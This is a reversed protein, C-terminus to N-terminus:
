NLDKKKNSLFVLSVKWEVFQGLFLKYISNLFEFIRIEIQNKNLLHLNKQQYKQIKQLEVVLVLEFQPIDLLNRVLKIMSRDLIVVVVALM